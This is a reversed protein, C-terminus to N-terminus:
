IWKLPLKWNVSSSWSITELTHLTLYVRLDLSRSLSALIEWSSPQDWWLLCVAVLCRKERDSSYIEKIIKNLWSIVWQFRILLFRKRRRLNKIRSKCIIHTSALLTNTFIFGLGRIRMWTLMSTTMIQIMKTETTASVRWLYNTLWTHAQPLKILLPHRTSWNSSIWIM